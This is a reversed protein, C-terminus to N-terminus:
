FKYGFYEIDRVYKQAVIQRTEENYYKTYHKHKTSNTRPIKKYPINIEKCVKKFDSQLSELKIVYDVAIDGNIERYYGDYGWHSNLWVHDSLIWSEFTKFHDPIANIKKGFTWLSVMRDWPNRVSTFKYYSNWDWKNKKFDNKVWELKGHHAYPVFNSKSRICSYKNLAERISSSCAKPTALYIFKYKHSIRM